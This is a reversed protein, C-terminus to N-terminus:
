EMYFSDEDCQASTQTYVFVTTSAHIESEM